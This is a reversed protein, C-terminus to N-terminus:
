LCEVLFDQVELATPCNQENQAESSLRRQVDPATPGGASRPGTWTRRM